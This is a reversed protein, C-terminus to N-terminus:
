GGQGPDALLDLAAQLDLIAHRSAEQARKFADPDKQLCAANLRYLSRMLADCAPQAENVVLERNTRYVKAREDVNV